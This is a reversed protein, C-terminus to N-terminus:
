PADVSRINNSLPKQPHYKTMHQKADNQATLNTIHILIFMQSNFITMTPAYSSGTWFQANFLFSTINPNKKKQFDSIIWGKKYDSM